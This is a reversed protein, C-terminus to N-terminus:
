RIKALLEFLNRVRQSQLLLKNITSLEEIFDKTRQILKLKFVKGSILTNKWKPYTSNNLPQLIIFDKSFSDSKMLSVSIQDGKPIFELWTNYSEIDKLAVYESSDLLLCVELLNDFWTSIIDFGQEDLALKRNHYYGYEEANFVLQFFGKIGGENEIQKLDFSAWREVDIIIRYNIEFM